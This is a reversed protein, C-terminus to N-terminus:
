LWVVGCRGDRVLEQEDGKNKGFTLDLNAAETKHLRHHPAQPKSQAEDEEKLSKSAYGSAGSVSKQTGKRGRAPLKKKEEREYESFREYVVSLRARALHNQPLRTHRLGM